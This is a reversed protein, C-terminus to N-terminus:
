SHCVTRHPRRHRESGPLFPQFVQVRRKVVLVTDLPDITNTKGLICEKLFQAPNPSNGPGGKMAEKLEKLCEKLADKICDKLKDKYKEWFVEDCCDQCNVANPTSQYLKCSQGDGGPAPPRRPPNAPPCNRDGHCGLGSCGVIKGNKYEYRCLGTPDLISTPANWAYRYLNNDGGQFGIPDKNIWRGKNTDLHRARVYQRSASDRRYGVQGGFRYPNVTTGAM